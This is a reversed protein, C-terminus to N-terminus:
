FLCRKGGTWLTHGPLLYVIKVPNCIVPTWHWREIGGFALFRQEQASKNGWLSGNLLSKWEFTINLNSFVGYFDPAFISTQGLAAARLCRILLFLLCANCSGLFGCFYFAGDEQLHDGIIFSYQNSSRGPAAALQLIGILLSEGGLPSLIAALSPRWTYFSFVDIRRRVRKAM